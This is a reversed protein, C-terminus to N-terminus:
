PKCYMGLGRKTRRTWTAKRWKVPQTISSSYRNILGFILWTTTYCRMIRYLSVKAPFRASRPAMRVTLGHSRVTVCFRVRQLVSIRRQRGFGLDSSQLGSCLQAREIIKAASWSGQEYVQQSVYTFAPEMVLTEISAFRSSFERYGFGPGEQFGMCQIERILPRAFNPITGLINTLTRSEFSPNLGSDIVTSSWYTSRAEEYVRRCTRLLQHHHSLRLTLPNATPPNPNITVITARSGRFVEKYFMLRIEAPLDMLFNSATGNIANDREEERSVGAM